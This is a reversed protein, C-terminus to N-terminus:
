KLYTERPQRLLHDHPSAHIFHCDRCNERWNEELKTAQHQEDLKESIHCKYCADAPTMLEGVRILGDEENKVTEHCRACPNPGPKMNHLRYVNWSPDGAHDKDNRGLVFHLEKGGIQLSQQGIEMGLVGVHTDGGFHRDWKLPKGNFLVDDRPLEGKLILWIRSQVVVSNDHPAVLQLNEGIQVPEARFTEQACCCVVSFLVFFFILTPRM